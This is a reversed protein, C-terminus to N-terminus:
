ITKRYEILSVYSDSLTASAETHTPTYATMTNTRTTLSPSSTSLSSAEYYFVTNKIVYEGSGTGDAPIKILLIDSLSSIATTSATIYLYNGFKKICFPLEDGISGFVRQWQIAGSTNYKTILISRSGRGASITSGIAFVGDSDYFIDYGFDSSPGGIMRQWILTGSDNYKALIMDDSGSGTSATNGVLYINSSEGICIGRSTDSSSLGISVQFQLNGSLDYEVLCLDNSGSSAQLSSASGTLYVYGTTKNVSIGRTYEGGATSTGGIARQWQVVGSSNYKVIAFARITGPTSTETGGGAYVNGDNDFDLAVYTEAATGGWVKQWVINGESDYKAILADNSGSGISTTNGVAYIYGDPSVRINFFRDVGSSGLTKQWIVKGNNSYKAIFADNNGSFTNTLGSLYINGYTDFDFYGLSETGSGSLINLLVSSDKKYSSTMSNLSWIGSNKRNLYVPSQSPRLAIVTSTSSFNSSNSQTFTFAAPDYAGSTWTEFSGVAASTDLLDDTGLSVVNTLGSHSYTDVGGTHAGAIFVLVLANTTIPTIAPPNALASSTASVTHSAESYAVDLPTTQDVGRWVHFIVIPSTSPQRASSNIVINYDPSESMIKYFIASQIDNSTASNNVYIDNLKTWGNSNSFTLDSANAASLFAFVIDGFSPGIGIGGTLNPFTFTNTTELSTLSTSAGGVYVPRIYEFGSSYSNSDEFDLTAGIMGGNDFVSPM